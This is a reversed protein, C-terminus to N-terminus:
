RIGLVIVKVIVKHSTNTSHRVCDTSCRVIIHFLVSSVMTYESFVRASYLNTM